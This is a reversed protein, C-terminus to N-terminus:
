ACQPCGNCLPQTRMRISRGGRVGPVHSTTAVSAANNPQHESTCRLCTPLRTLTHAEHLLADLLPSFCRAALTGTNGAAAHVRCRRCPCRVESASDLLSALQTAQAAPVGALVRHRLYPMLAELLLLAQSCVAMHRATISRLGATHMAGASLVQQQSCASYTRLLEGIRSGMEAQLQCPVAGFALLSQVHQLLVSTGHVIFYRGTPLQVFSQEAAAAATHTSAQEGGQAFAGDSPAADPAELGAAAHLATQMAAHTSEEESGDASDPEEAAHMRLHAVNHSDVQLLQEAFAQVRAPVACAAWQEADM